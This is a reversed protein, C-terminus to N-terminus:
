GWSQPWRKWAAKVGELRFSNPTEELAQIVKEFMEREREM